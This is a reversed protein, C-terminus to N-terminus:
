VMELQTVLHTAIEKFSIGCPLNGELGTIYRQLKTVRCKQSRKQHRSLGSKCSYDKDCYECKVVVKHEHYYNRNYKRRQLDISSTPLIIQEDNSENEM